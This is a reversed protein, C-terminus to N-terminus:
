KKKSKREEFEKLYKEPNAKFADRCGTCCVYYTQGKYDVRMTGLGGSVVCEPKGDGSAFDEGDKTCGVQYKKKFDGKEAPKVDYRYLYRNSHLLSFVLRQTEGTKDDTRDLTLRDDKLEGTFVLSTKDTAELTLQYRDKDALYRMEGATFYKGKEVVLRLWCDADKFQWDWKITETWFNKQQEERTGEPTGTGRWSGILENLAQLAEKPTKKAPADEAAAMSGAILFILTLTIAQIRMTTGTQHRAVGSDYV